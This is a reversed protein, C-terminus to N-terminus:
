LSADCGAKFYIRALLKLKKFSLEAM